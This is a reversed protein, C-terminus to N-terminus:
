PKKLFYLSDDGLGVADLLRTLLHNAGSFHPIYPLRLGIKEGLTPQLGPTWLVSPNGPKPHTLIHACQFYIWLVPTIEFSRELALGAKEAAVTMSSRSFFQVHYPVHWNIWKRGCLRRGWGNANPTTLIATGGPKLIRCIGKLTSVPDQVHEIVQDMTVYDFFDEEYHSPDFLGVRVKYGYREAVRRINEDAEVGYVDCGRAQHYGLTEGFGCGIDLVRVNRPVWRFAHCNDGSLWTRFGHAESHPKHSQIDYSSRPYYRTYMETLEEATFSALLFIHGCRTCQGASYTGPYGYRDDFLSFPFKEPTGNCIPCTQSTM